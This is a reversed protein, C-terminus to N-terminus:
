KKSKAARCLNECLKQMGAPVGSQLIEGLGRANEGDIRLRQTIRTAEDIDEFVWKFLAGGGPVPIEIVASQGARVDRLVWEIRGSSRSLTTGYTGAVFPGHLVISEIDGDFAWNSVETWYRWAFEKSVPCEISHEFSYTEGM